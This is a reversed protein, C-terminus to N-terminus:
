KSKNQQIANLLAFIMAGTKEQFRKKAKYRQKYIKTQANNKAKALIEQKHSEYYNKASQKHEASKNYQDRKQKAAEPDQKERYLKNKEALEEKHTERYKKNRIRAAIKKELKEIASLNSFREKSKKNSAAITEPHLARHERMYLKKRENRVKKEDPSLKDLYRQNAAKIQEPNKAKQNEYRLTNINKSIFNQKSPYYQAYVKKAQEPSINLILANQKFARLNLRYFVQPFVALKINKLQLKVPILAYVSMALDPAICARDDILMQLDAENFLKSLGSDNIFNKKYATANYEEQWALFIDSLKDISNKNYKSM